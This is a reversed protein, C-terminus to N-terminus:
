GVQLNLKDTRLEFWKYIITQLKPIIPANRYGRMQRIVLAEEDNKAVEITAVRTGNRMSYIMSKGQIIRDAYSMVCHQMTTGEEVLLEKNVIPVFDFDDVTTTPLWPEVTFEKVKSQDIFTDAILRGQFTRHYERVALDVRRMSMNPNLDIGRDSVWDLIEILQTRLAHINEFNLYNKLIWKELGPREQSIFRLATFFNLQLRTTNPMQMLHKPNLNYSAFSVVGPKLRKLSLPTELLDSIVKLKEGKLILDIAQARQDITFRNFTHSSSPFLKIALFPFVEIFQKIREGYQCIANYLGIRDISHFRYITHLWDPNTHARCLNIMTNIAKFIFDVHNTIMVKGAKKLRRRKTKILVSGLTTEFTRVRHTRPIPHFLALGWYNTKKIQDPRFILRKEIIPGPGKIRLGYPGKKDELLATYPNTRAM